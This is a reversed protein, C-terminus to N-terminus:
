LSPDKQEAKPRNAEIPELWLTLGDVELISAYSGAPIAKQSRAQWNTGNLEALGPRGPEIEKIVEVERGLYQDAVMPESLSDTVKPERKALFAKIHKRLLGLFISSSIIFILWQMVIPLPFIYNVALVVWAGLGFFGFVIGPTSIELILFIFGVVFWFLNGGGSFEM